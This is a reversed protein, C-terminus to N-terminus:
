YLLKMLQSYYTHVEVCPDHSFAKELVEFCEINLSDICLETCIDREVTGGKYLILEINNQVIFENLAALASKCELSHYIPNYTLHHIHNRCFRFSRQYRGELHKYRVCPYLEMELDTFGNEALIYLKRICRHTASIQIFEVDLLGWNKESLIERAQNM